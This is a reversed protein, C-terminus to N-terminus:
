CCAASNQFPQNKMLAAPDMMAGAVNRDVVIMSMMM